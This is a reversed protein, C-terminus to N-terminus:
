LFGNLQAAHAADLKRVSQKRAAKMNYPLVALMKVLFSAATQVFGREAQPRSALMKSVVTPFSRIPQVVPRDSEGLGAHGLRRSWSARMAAYTECM